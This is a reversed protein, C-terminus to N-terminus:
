REIAVTTEHIIVKHRLQLVKAQFHKTRYGFVEVKALGRFLEEKGLGGHCKLDFGKFFIQSRAEKVAAGPPDRKSPL